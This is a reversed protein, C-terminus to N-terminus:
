GTAAKYPVFLADRDLFDYPMIDSTIEGSILKALFDTMSAQYEEYLPGRAENIVTPWDDPHGVTLWFLVDGNDTRGWPLLGEPDPYLPYPCEEGWNEELERLVDLSYNIQDRLNLYENESFPTFPWLFRGIYGTGFANIYQKYDNPLTVGIIKEIAPWAEVSGAEVPLTPPTMVKYLSEITM